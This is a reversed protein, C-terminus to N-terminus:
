QILIMVFYVQVLGYCDFISSYNSKHHPPDQIHQHSIIGELQLMSEKQATLAQANIRRVSYKVQLKHVSEIKSRRRSTELFLHYLLYTSLHPLPYHTNSDSATNLTEKDHGSVLASCTIVLVPFASDSSLTPSHHGIACPM